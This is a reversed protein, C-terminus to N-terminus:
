PEKVVEPVEVEQRKTQILQNVSRLNLEAQERQEILRYALSELEGVTMDKINKGQQVM